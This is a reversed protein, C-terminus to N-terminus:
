RILSIRQTIPGGTTLFNLGYFGASINDLEIVGPDNDVKIIEGFINIVYVPSKIDAILGPKLTVFERCPNPYYFVSSQSDVPDSVATPNKIFRYVTNEPIPWTVYSEVFETIIQPSLPDGSLLMVEGSVEGYNLDYGEVLGIIPGLTDFALSPDSVSHPGIHFEFNDSAEFIKLQFNVFDIYIGNLEESGWFGVNKYELTFVREGAPGETKYLIPSMSSDIDYGRDILDTAFPVMLNVSTPNLSTSLIGDYFDELAYLNTTMEGFFEFSFGIPVVFSPNDWVGKTAQVGNELFEFPENSVTLSYTQSLLPIYSLLIFGAVILLSSKYMMNTNQFKIIM